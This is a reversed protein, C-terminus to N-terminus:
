GQIHTSIYIYIYIYIYIRTERRYPQDTHLTHARKWRGRIFNSPAKSRVPVIRHQLCKLESRLKNCIEVSRSGIQNSNKKLLLRFRRPFYKDIKRRKDVLVFLM